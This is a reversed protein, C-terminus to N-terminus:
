VTNDLFITEYKRFFTTQQVKTNCSAGSTFITLLRGAMVKSSTAGTAVLSAARSAGSSTFPLCASHRNKDEEKSTQVKYSNNLVDEAYWNM